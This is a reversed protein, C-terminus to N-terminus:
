KLQIVKENFPIMPLGEKNYLTAIPNSQWAYQVRVPHLVYKSHVYITQGDIFADAWFWKGTSDALAFNQVLSNGKNLLGGDINDFSIRVHSEETVASKFTPGTGIVNLHYVHQRAAQYLRYGVDQKNAPHINFEDGIDITTAMATNSSSLLTGKQADRFQAWDDDNLPVESRSKFSALQVFLFPIDGLNWYKRWDNILMNQLATYQKWKSTNNEGQYWLFGKIGFPIIPYIMGNYNVTAKNYYDQWGAVAPEIANNHLWEKDLIIKEGSTNKFYSNTYRDGIDATGWNVYMRISLVNMGLKILGSPIKITKNKLKSVNTAVEVGNIYVHDNQDNLPLFLSDMNISATDNITFSKRFWILGWYSGYGMKISNLPFSTKAWASDNYGVQTAGIKVGQFSTNAIVSRDLESQLSKKVYKSWNVSDENRSNLLETFDPHRLLSEKSMWTEIGTAGRSAVIIGVPINQDFYLARAFFYSVASFSSINNSNCIKWEKQVIDSMPIISTVNDVLRFRIFPFNANNIEVEKNLLDSGMRYEMNSQGSALWVDGIMINKYNITDNESIIKLEYSKGDAYMSPLYAKWKGLSDAIVQARNVGIYIAIKSNPTAIGWVPIAINRQLIANDGFIGAVKLQANLSIGSFCIFFYTSLFLKKFYKSLTKIKCM